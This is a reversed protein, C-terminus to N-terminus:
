TCYGGIGLQGQPVGDKGNLQVCAYRKEILRGKLHDLLTGTRDVTSADNSWQFGVTGDFPVNYGEDDQTTAVGFRINNM